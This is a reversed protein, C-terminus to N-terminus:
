STRQSNGLMKIQVYRCDSINQPPSKAIVLTEEICNLLVMTRKWDPWEKSFLRKLISHYAKRNHALHQQVSLLVPLDPTLCARDQNIAIGYLAKSMLAQLYLTKSPITSDVVDHCNIHFNHLLSETQKLMTLNPDFTFTNPASFVSPPMVISLSPIWAPIKNDFLVDSPGIHVGNTESVVPYSFENDEDPIILAPAASDVTIPDRGIL